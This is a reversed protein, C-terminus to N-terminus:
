SGVATYHDTKFYHISTEEFLTKLYTFIDNIDSPSLMNIDKSECHHEAKWVEPM